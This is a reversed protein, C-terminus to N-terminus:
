MMLLPYVGAGHGERIVVEPLRVHAEQRTGHSLHDAFNVVIGTTVLGLGVAVTVGAKADFFLFDPQLGHAPFAGATPDLAAVLGRQGVVVAVVQVLWVNKGRHLVLAAVDTVPGPRTALMVVLILERCDRRAHGVTWRAHCGLRSHFSGLRRHHHAFGTFFDPDIVVTPHLHLEEPVADPHPVLVAGAPDTNRLQPGALVPARHVDRANTLFHDDIEDLAIRVVGDDNAADVVGFLHRGVRQGVLLGLARDLRHARLLAAAEVLQPKFIQLTALLDKHMRLLIEVDADLVIAFLPDALVAMQNHGAIRHLLDGAVTVALHQPLLHGLDTAVPAEFHGALFGDFYASFVRQGHGTVDDFHELGVM